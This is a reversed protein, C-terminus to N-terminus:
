DANVTVGRVVQFNEDYDRLQETGDTFVVWCSKQRYHRLKKVVKTGKDTKLMRGKLAREAEAIISTREFDNLYCDPCQNGKRETGPIAGWAPPSEKSCEIACCKQCIYTDAGCAECFHPM